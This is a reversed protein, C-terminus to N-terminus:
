LGAMCYITVWRICNTKHALYHVRSLASTNNPTSLCLRGNDLCSIHISNISNKVFGRNLLKSCVGLYNPHKNWAEMGSIPAVVLVGALALKNEPFRSTFCNTYSM